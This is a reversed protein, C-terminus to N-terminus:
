VRVWVRALIESMTEDDSSPSALPKSDSEGEGAGGSLMMWMQLQLQTRGKPEKWPFSSTATHSPLAAPSPGTFPGLTPLQPPPLLSFTDPSLPLTPPTSLSNHSRLASNKEMDARHKFAGPGGKDKIDRYLCSCQKMGKGVWRVGGAVVWTGPTSHRRQERTERLM